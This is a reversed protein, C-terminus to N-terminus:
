GPTTVGSGVSNLPAAHLAPKKAEGMLGKRKREMASKVWDAVEKDETGHYQEVEIEGTDEADEDEETIM